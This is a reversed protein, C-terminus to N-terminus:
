LVMTRFKLSLRIHAVQGIDNNCLQTNDSNSGLEEHNCTLEKVLWQGIIGYLTNPNNFKTLIIKWNIPCDCWFITTTVIDCNELM